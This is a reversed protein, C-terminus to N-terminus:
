SSLYPLDAEEFPLYPLGPDDELPLYPLGAEELTLFLLDTGRKL